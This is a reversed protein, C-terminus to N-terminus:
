GHLSIRGSNECAHLLGALVDQWDSEWPGVWYQVILGPETVKAAFPGKYALSGDRNVAYYHWGKKQDPKAAGDDWIRHRLGATSFHFM